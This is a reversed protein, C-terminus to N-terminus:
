PLLSWIKNREIKEIEENMASIWDENELSDNLSNPEFTSVLYTGRRSSRRTM